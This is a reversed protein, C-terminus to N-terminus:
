LQKKIINKVNDITIEKICLACQGKKIAKKCHYNGYGAFYGRTRCYACPMDKIITSPLNENKNLEDVLYPFFQYKDYVGAICICKRHTAAAIHLTASDNGIVLDAHQVISSWETFSTKGVHNFIRDKHKTNSILKEASSYESEGGCLHIDLNYTEIIWDAIKQFREIPWRKIPTSAGPCIVCYHGTIIREQFKLTSLKGKYNNLGLNNLLLRHRQIMMMGIPPIVVNTYALRQFLAMQLPWKIRFCSILGYRERSCLTTSLLDASLSSGPVITIEAFKNYEATIEKFYKFDNVLRKFDITEIHLQQPLDAVDKLFKYISPRCIMTVDYGKQKHFLEIYGNLAPLLIISDGFVQQFIILVKHNQPRQRFKNLIFLGVAYLTIKIREILIYM